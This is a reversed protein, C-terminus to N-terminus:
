FKVSVRGFFFQGPIRNYFPYYSNSFSSMSSPPQKGFLNQIGFTFDTNWSDMHYTAEVDHYTVAGIHNQGLYATVGQANWTQAAQNATFPHSFVGLQFYHNYTAANKADNNYTCNAIVTTPSANANTCPEVTHDVYYMSWMASWDGYHWNLSLNLRRKPYTAGSGPNVSLPANPVSWGALKSVAYGGPVTANPVTKDFRKLITIDVGLKFDGASTSPFKYHTAIDFGDTITSGVNTNINEIQNVQGSVVQILKCYSQVNAQYCGDLINDPGITAVTNVLSIHYYDVSLDYGPMWDPNYVFGVTKSISKEPTMKANGGAITSIQGSIQKAVVPHGNSACFAGGANGITCPDTVAPFNNNIGEYFESISPVRFGQSWSGRLLLNDNVQWRLAARATSAHDAGPIFVQGQGIGGWKFQSFRDALDLSVDKMFPADAVLPINFEFYEADTAVRGNTPKAANGTTVGLAILADSHDFGNQELYEYGLALGVPGAPLDFLDGSIDAGYNRVDQRDINHAEFGVFSSMAPTITQGAAGAGGFINLPVCGATAACSSSLSAQLQSTNFDGTLSQERFNSNYAGNVDWDWENGLMNFYGKFGASWHFTDINENQVRDGLEQPTGRRRLSVLEVGTTMCNASGYLACWGAFNPDPVQAGLIPNKPDVPDFKPYPVLDVKFPNFPNDAGVGINEGNNQVGNNEEGLFLPEPALQQLSNRNNFLVTTTFTLNDALDYHGQVYLSTRESPAILYNLPAYNFEDSGAFDRWDSTANPTPVAGPAKLTVDCETAPGPAGPINNSGGPTNPPFLPSETVGPMAGCISGNNIIFRGGPVSSSGGGIGYIAEKTLTRSGAYNGSENNYSVNMVVGSKDGSSGLTYDYEQKKGDNHGNGHYMGIYANAEAGSFDKVTIVNVVGAIADSGYIASAGDQLIEIHDIVSAPITQLDVANDIEPVWRHGNVLVLVRQPGLNRLDMNEEGGNGNNVQENVASGTSTLSQLVDGINAFGSAKIEQATVVTIPQATEVSTRKIRTGTVEIKGLQATSQDTSATTAAADAAFVSPTALASATGALLAYRVAKGIQNSNM